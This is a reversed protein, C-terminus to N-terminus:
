LWRRTRKLYARYPEGDRAILFQEELRAEISLMIFTLLACFLSLVNPVALFLGLAIAMFGIYIPHRSISYLGHQVLTNDADIGALWYKGMQAQAVVSWILGGYALILGIT